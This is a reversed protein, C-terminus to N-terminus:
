LGVGAWVVVVDVTGTADSCRYDLKWRTVKTIPGHEQRNGAKKM